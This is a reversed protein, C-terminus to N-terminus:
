NGFWGTVSNMISRGGEQLSDFVTTERIEIGQCSLTNAFAIRLASSLDENLAILIALARRSDQEMTMINRLYRTFISTFEDAQRNLSKEIERGDVIRDNLIANVRNMLDNTNSEGQTGRFLESIGNKLLEQRVHFDLSGLPETDETVFDALVHIEYIVTALATHKESSQLPFARATKDKLDKNRDIWLEKVIDLFARRFESREDETLVDALQDLKKDLAVHMPKANTTRPDAPNGSNLGWHFFYRHRLSVFDESLKAYVAPVAAALRARLPEGQLDGRVHDITSSFRDLEQRLRSYASSSSSIGLIQITLETHEKASGLAASEHCFSIVIAFAAYACFGFGFKHGKLLM